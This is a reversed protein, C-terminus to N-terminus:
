YRIPIDKNVKVGNRWTGLPTVGQGRAHPCGLHVSGFAIGLKM